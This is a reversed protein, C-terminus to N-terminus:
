LEGTTNDRDFFEPLHTSFTRTLALPSCCIGPLTV